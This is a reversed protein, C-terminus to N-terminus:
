VEPLAKWPGSHAHRKETFFFKTGQAALSRSFYSGSQFVLTCFLWLVVHVLELDLGFALCTSVRAGRTWSTPNHWWARIARTSGCRWPTLQRRRARSLEPAAMDM